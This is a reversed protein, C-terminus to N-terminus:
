LVEGTKSMTAHVGLRQWSAFVHHFHSNAPEHLTGIVCRLPESCSLTKKQALSKATRVYLTWSHNLPYKGNEKQRM